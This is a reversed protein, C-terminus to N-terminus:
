SCLRKKANEYDSKLQTILEEVTFSADDIAGVGHGASWITKWAKAEENLDKLTNSSQKATDSDESLTVPDLGAQKLSDNLFNAPVGSVAPTYTIDTAHATEVMKKYAPEASSQQTNIFRTGMYAYDAGMIQAALIDAGTSISGALVIAGDWFRRIEALFAFPNLTGAHGGAGACVAIIGDVGHQAAKKAHRPITVDHFVKGGYSHVAEIVAPDVGLSTIVLPVQYQVCLALDDKLRPNAPNVILNVAYPADSPTLASTIAQLWQECGDSTRQNLAPFSGIVGNRCCAIVMDPNSILFMPAAIAPISLTDHFFPPAYPTHTSM